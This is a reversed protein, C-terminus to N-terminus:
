KARYGFQRASMAVEATQLRSGAPASDKPKTHRRSPHDAMAKKSAQRARLEKPVRPAKHRAIYTTYSLDLNSHSSHVYYPGWRWSATIVYSNGNWSVGM